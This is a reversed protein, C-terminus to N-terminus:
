RYLKYITTHVICAHVILKLSTFDKSLIDDVVKELQDDVHVYISIVQAGFM